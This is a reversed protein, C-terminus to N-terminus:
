LRRRSIDHASRGVDRYRVCPYTTLIEATKV